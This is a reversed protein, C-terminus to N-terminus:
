DSHKQIEKSFNYYIMFYQFGSAITLIVAIYLMFIGINYFNKNIYSLLLFFISFFQLFTKWKGSKGAPLIYGKSALEARLGTIILERFLIIFIIWFSVDLSKFMYILISMIFIKDALPDLLKGTNSVTNYKRALFGDLYDSLGGLLFFIIVWYIYHNELLIIIPVVLFIRVISLINALNKM